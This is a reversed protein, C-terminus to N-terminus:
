RGAVPGPAAAYATCRRRSRAAAPFRNRRGPPPTRWAPATDASLSRSGRPLYLGRCQQTTLTANAGRAWELDLVELGRRAAWYHTAVVAVANDLRLVALVGPVARTARDNVRALKGGFTPCAKVTAVRMGPVSVDIGFQTVGRVKDDADLRAMPKGILRFQSRDKLKVAGPDPLKGAAVAVQAYTVSRDSARHHIVGRLVTCSDPAVNWRAAAAAVLLTRAVAGSQRLAMYTSRTSTSGGTIQGALLRMGYLAENVPAHEVEIQDLEVDLEEALLMCSGTYIAQGMEVMPMVLRIKGSADIRIFANPAFPPAGDLAAAAADGPQRHPNVLAQAMRPLGLWLFGVALGGAQLLARRRPAPPSQFPAASM